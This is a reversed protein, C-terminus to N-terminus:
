QEVKWTITQGEVTMNLTEGQSAGKRGSVITSKGNIVVSGNYVNIQSIIIFILKVVVIYFLCTNNSLKKAILCFIM